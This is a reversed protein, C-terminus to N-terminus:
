EDEEEAILTLDRDAELRRIASVIQNMAAEAEKEKVKGREAIEERLAQAMRQSMNALIFDAAAQGLRFQGFKIRANSHCSITADPM